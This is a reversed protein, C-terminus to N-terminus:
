IPIREEKYILTFCWMSLISVLKLTKQSELDLFIAFKFLAESNYLFQTQHLKNYIHQYWHLLCWNWLRFICYVLFVTAVALQNPPIIRISINNTQKIRFPKFRSIKVQFTWFFTYLSKLSSYSNKAHINKYFLNHWSLFFWM